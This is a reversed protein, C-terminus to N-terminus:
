HTATYERSVKEIADRSYKIRIESIPKKRWIGFIRLVRMTM